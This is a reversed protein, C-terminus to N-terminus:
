FKDSFKVNVAAPTTTLCWRFCAEHLFITHKFCLNLKCPALKPFTKAARLNGTLETCMLDTARGRLSPVKKSECM